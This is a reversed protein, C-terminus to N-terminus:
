RLPRFADSTKSTETQVTVKKLTGTFTFPPTYTSSVPTGWDEGVDFTDDTSFHIPVTKELRGEAVTKENVSLTGTGGKGAGGGDYAFDFRITCSGTPLPESLHDHIEGSRALQLHLDTQPRTSPIRLRRDRRRPHGPHGRRRRRPKRGRRRHLVVPEQHRHDGGGAAPRHRPTFSAKNGSVLKPRDAALLEYCSNAMPYINHKRAESDFLEQFEKLKDPHEAALDTGLGFDNRMDYLEWVDKEFPGFEKGADTVGDLGHRTGAWWGEHYIARSGTLEFYQTTHRDEAQADDFTYLMSVGGMPMQEVGNVRKPEPLGVGELITPAIDILHHFQRRRGGQKIRAPWSIAVATSCGGGSTVMKGYNFPTSTAYGWAPPYCGHSNPGGFDDMRSAVDELSEQVGNYYTLKNMVGHLGGEPTPGNDGAIYIILTNDLDGTQQIAEIIRGVQYDTHEVAACFVEMWRAGVKKDLDTLDDWSPLV